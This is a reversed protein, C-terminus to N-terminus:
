EKQKKKKEENEKREKKKNTERGEFVRKEIGRNKKKEERGGKKKRQKGINILLLLPAVRDQGMMTCRLTAHPMRQLAPSGEGKKLTIVPRTSSTRSTLTKDLQPFLFFTLVTFFVFEFRSFVKKKGQQMDLPLLLVIDNLIVDNRAEGGRKKFSCHM